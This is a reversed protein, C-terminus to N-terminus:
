SLLKRELAAAEPIGINALQGLVAHVRPLMPASAGLSAPDAAHLADLWRCWRRGLSYDAWLATDTPHAALLAEAVEVAFPLLRADAKVELLSIVLGATFLTPGQRFLTSAGPLLPLLREVHDPRLSCGIQRLGYYGFLLPPVGAGLHMEVGGTSTEVHNRWQWTEVLRTTFLSRIKVLQADLDGGTFYLSQIPRLLTPAVELFAIDPLDTISRCVAALQETTFADVLQAVLGYYAENWGELFHAEVDAHRELGAGNRTSTYGQYAVAIIEPRTPGSCLPYLLSIWAAAIHEDVFTDSPKPPPPELIRTGDSSPLRIGRRKRARDVPFLPWTPQTGHEFLWLLEAAVHAELAQTHATRRADDETDDFSSRRRPKVSAVFATRVLAMSLRPDLAAVDSSVAHAGVSSEPNTAALRLLKEALESSPQRRHAHFLGAFALAAANHELMQGGSFPDRPRTAAASLAEIAWTGHKAVTDDSGHRLVVYAARLRDQDDPHSRPENPTADASAIWEAIGQAFAPACREPKSVALHLQSHITFHRTEPAAAAQLAEERRAEDPPSTYLYQEPKQPDPSWNNPNIRNLALLAMVRPDGFTSDADPPGLRKAAGELHQRLTERLAADQTFAYRWLLYEFPLLSQPNFTLGRTPLMSRVGHLQDLTGNQRELCLLEPSGAFPIAADLPPDNMSRLLDVAILVFAACTGSPGLVDRIITNIPDGKEIRAFAWTRLAALAAGVVNPGEQRGWRYTDMWPFFRVQNEIILTIGDEGPAKGRALVSTAHSLIDRILTLGAAPAHSLLEEFAKTKETPPYFFSDVYSFPEPIDYSGYRRRPTTPKILAGRLLDAFPQPAAQPLQGPASVIGDLARDSDNALFAVYDAALAPRAGCFTIFTTKLTDSLAKRQDRPLADLRSPEDARLERLLPYIRDLIYPTLQDQGFTAVIWDWFLDVADKLAPVPVADLNAILWM